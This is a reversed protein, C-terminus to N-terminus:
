DGSADARENSSPLDEMCGKRSRLIGEPRGEEHHDDIFLAHVQAMTRNIGWQSGMVGWRNIFEAKADELRESNKSM